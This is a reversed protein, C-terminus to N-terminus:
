AVEERGRLGRLGEPKGRCRIAMEGDCAETQLSGRFPDLKSARQEM